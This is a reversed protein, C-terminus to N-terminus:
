EDTLLNKMTNSSLNLSLGSNTENFVLEGNMLSLRSEINSFGLGNRQDSEKMGVGNDAYKLSLKDGDGFLELEISDANAHKITNNVLEQIIRYWNLQYERSVEGKLDCDFNVKILGSINLQDRISAVAAELGLNELVVPRLDHSVRRVSAITSELLDFVRLKLDDFTKKSSDQALHRFYLKSTTLLAGIEDHLDQGIRNREKEQSLLNSRLLQRQYEQEKQQYEKQQRLIRRQYALFFFIVGLALVFMGLMAGILLEIQNLEEAQRM